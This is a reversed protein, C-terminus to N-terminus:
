WAPQLWWIIMKRDPDTNAIYKNAYDQATNFDLKGLYYYYLEYVCPLSPDITTAKKLLDTVLEWNKQTYYVM